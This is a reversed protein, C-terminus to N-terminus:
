HPKRGRQIECASKQVINQLVFYTRFKASKEVLPPIAHNEAKMREVSEQVGITDWAEFIGLEWNFGWKMVNDISEIDDAIEPIRAAAYCMTHSLCKWAFRGARDDNDILRKLREGADTVRRAGDVSDLGGKIGGGAPPYGGKLGGALPPLYPPSVPCM